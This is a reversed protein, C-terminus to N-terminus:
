SLDKWDKNRKEILEVKKRRSGGKLQKERRIADEISLFEEYYVLKNINFRSTFANKFYGTKHQQIRQTLNSTVGIYLVTNNHNTLIYIYGKKM